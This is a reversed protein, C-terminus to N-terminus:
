IFIKNSSLYVAQSKINELRTEVIGNSNKEFVLTSNLSNNCTSLKTNFEIGSEIINGFFIFMVPYSVGTAVAGISGIFM